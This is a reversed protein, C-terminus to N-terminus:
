FLGAAEADSISLKDMEKKVSGSSLGAKLDQEAKKIQEPSVEGNEIKHKCTWGDMGLASCLAATIMITKGTSKMIVPIPATIKFSKGIKSVTEAGRKLLSKSGTAAAKAEATTAEKVGKSIVSEAKSGFKTLFELGLKEGIWKVGQGIASGIKGLGGKLYNLVKRFIGGETAAKTGLEAMSKVGVAAEKFLKGAYPLICCVADVIIDVWSWKYEGTEYKGSLMKYVDWILLSGFVAVDVASGIPEIFTIATMVGMGVASFSIERIGEMLCEFFNSTLCNWAKAIANKVSNWVASVKEGAWTLFGKQGIQKAQDAVWAGGKKVQDVTWNAANKVGTAVGSGIESWNKGSYFDSNFPNLTWEMIQQVGVWADKIRNEVLLKDVSENILLLKNGYIEEWEKIITTSKSPQIIELLNYLFKRPSNSYELLSIQGAKYFTQYHEKVMELGIPLNEATYEIFRGNGKQFVTSTELIGKNTFIYKVDLSIGLLQLNNNKM